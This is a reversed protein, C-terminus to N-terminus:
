VGSHPSHRNQLDPLVLRHWFIRAVWPLPQHRVAGGAEGLVALGDVM